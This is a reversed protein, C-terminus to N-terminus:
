SEGRKVTVEAVLPILLMTIGDVASLQCNIVDVHNSEDLEKDLSFLVEDTNKEIFDIVIQNATIHKVVKVGKIRGM